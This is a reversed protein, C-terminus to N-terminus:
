EVVCGCDALAAPLPRGWQKLRRASIVAMTDAVSPRYIPLEATKAGELVKAALLGAQYGVKTWSVSVAALVLHEQAGQPSSSIVPIKLRDATAVIAPLAPM